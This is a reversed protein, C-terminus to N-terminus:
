EKLKRELIERIKKLEKTQKDLGLNRRVFGYIWIILLLAILGFVIEILMFLFNIKEEIMIISSNFNKFFNDM